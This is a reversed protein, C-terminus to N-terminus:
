LVRLHVAVELRLVQMVRYVLNRYHQVSPIVLLSQPYPTHGMQPPTPHSQLYESSLDAREHLFM